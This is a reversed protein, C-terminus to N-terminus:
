SCIQTHINQSKFLESLRDSWDTNSDGPVCLQLANEPNVDGFM